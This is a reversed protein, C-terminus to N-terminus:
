LAAPGLPTYAQLQEHTFDIIDTITLNVHIYIAVILLSQGKETRYEASCLEGSTSVNVSLSDVERIYNQM